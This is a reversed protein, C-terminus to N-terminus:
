DVLFVENRPICKGRNDIYHYAPPEKDTLCLHATIHEFKWGAMYQGLRWPAGDWYSVPDATFFVSGIWEVQLGDVHDGLSRSIACVGGM